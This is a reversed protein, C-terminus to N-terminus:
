SHNKRVAADELRQREEERKLVIKEVEAAYQKGAAEETVVTAPTKTTKYHRDAHFKAVDYSMPVTLVEKDTVAVWIAQNLESRSM